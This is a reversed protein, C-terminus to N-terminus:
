GDTRSSRATGRATPAPADWPPEPGLRAALFDIFARVKAPVYRSQPYVAYLAQTEVADDGFLVRLRGARLDDGVLFTPMLAIGFGALLAEYLGTSNNAHFRGRVKVIRGAIPWETPRDSLTYILCEHRALDAPSGPAGRRELYAPAACVVRRIPLLRRAVLSSDALQTRGRLAMDFGEEVLDVVRDNMVLDLEVAQHRELFDPIVRAIHLLGLSMPASVRLKGRPAADLDQMARAAEDIEDLIRVASAYYAGGAETLSMRRTTRNLLRANLARELAAVQKSAVANSIGLDRAAAAFGSCEVVRRFVRMAALQDM